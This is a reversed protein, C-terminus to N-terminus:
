LRSGLMHVHCPAEQPNRVVKIGGARSVTSSQENSATAPQEQKGTTPRAQERMQPRPQAQKGQGGIGVRRPTRAARARGLRPLKAGRHHLSGRVRSRYM